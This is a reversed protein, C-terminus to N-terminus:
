HHDNNNNQNNNNNNNNNNNDDDGSPKDEDGPQSQEPLEYTLVFPSFSSTTFTIGHEGKEISTVETPKATDIASAGAAATGERDLGDFHYLKFNTDEGTGAPYPWFVTVTSGDAPTLWANGNQTDVLDFYKSVAGAHGSAFSAEEVATLVLDSESYGAGNWTLEDALLSVDSTLVDVGAAGADQENIYFKQGEAVGVHFQDPNEEVAAALDTKAPTIPANAAAYRVTLKGPTSGKDDYGCYFTQGGAEIKLSISAVDVDGTYLNMKYENSLNDTLTFADSTVTNNANDTFAVRIAPQNKGPEIKYVFHEQDNILATSTSDGYKQLTWTREAGATTAATVTIKGSLDAAHGNGGLAQNVENPLTIYFGPEPLSNSSTSVNGNMVAEYGDKGGMYITIDAPQLKIKGDDKVEHEEEDQPPPNDPDDDPFDEGTVVASNTLPKDADAQVVTYTYTYTVTGDVPLTEITATWVGDEWTGVEKDGNDTVDSPEGAGSFTDTVILGELTVNGTNTVTIKYTIEDGVKLPADSAYNKVEVGNRVIKALEKDITADPNKDEVPLEEDDTNDPDDDTLGGGTVTATNTLTKGLDEEVVTYTYTLTKSDKPALTGDPMSALTGGPMSALTGGPTWTFDNGNMTIRGNGDSGFSPSGAGNFTDTVVLGSLTTNGTNTVTISYTIVDGVKLKNNEDVTIESGDREVKSTKEISVAPNEDEVTIEETDTPDEPLETGTVTVTNTITNGLDNETVTYTYTAKWPEAGAKLSGIAWTYTKNEGSETWGTGNPNMGTPTGAGNFTDTLTLGELAVNGTNKVTITYTIEDGVKLKDDAELQITKGDRVISEVEKTVSAAPNPEEPESECAVKITAPAEARWASIRNGDSDEVVEWNLTIVVEDNDTREHTVEQFNKNYSDVYSEPTVTVEVYYGDASNGKLGSIKFTGETLGYTENAHQADTNTCDVVVAADDTFIGGVNDVLDDKTPPTVERLKDIYVLLDKYGTAESRLIAQNGYAFREQQGESGMLTLASYADWSSWRAVEYPAKCIPTITVNTAYPIMQQQAGEFSTAKYTYTKTEGSVPDTYDFSIIYGMVNELPDGEGVSSRDVNLKLHNSFTWLYIKLVNDKRHADDAAAVFEIFGTNRIWSGSVASVIDYSNQDDFYYYGDAPEFNLCDNEGAKISLEDTKHQREGNVYIEVTLEYGDGTPTKYGIVGYNTKIENADETPKCLDCTCNQPCKCETGGPCQCWISGCPCKTTLEVTLDNNTLATSLSWKPSIEYAANFGSGPTFWYQYAGGEANTLIEPTYVKQSYAVVGNVKVTLIREHDDRTADGKLWSFTGYLTEDDQILVDDHTKFSTLEITATSNDWTPILWYTNNGRPEFINKIDSISVDVQYGAAIITVPTGGVNLDDITYSGVDEGDIVIKFTVENAEYVPIDAGTQVSIDIGLDVDRYITENSIAMPSIGSDQSPQEKSQAAVKAPAKVPEPTVEPSASPTPTPTGAPEPSETPAASPVPSETPEPTVEPSASPTPEASPAPSESPEPSPQEKPQEGPVSLTNQGEETVDPAPTEKTKEEATVTSSAVSVTEGTDAFVATPLLSATLALACVLAALRKARPKWFRM